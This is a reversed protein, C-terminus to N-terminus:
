LRMRGEWVITERDDVVLGLYIFHHSPPHPLPPSLYYSIWQPFLTKNENFQLLIFLPKNRTSIRDSAPILNVSNALLNGVKTFM